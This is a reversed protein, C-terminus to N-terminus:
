KSVLKIRLLFTFIKSFFLALYVVIPLNNKNKVYIHLKDISTIDYSRFRYTLYKVFKMDSFGNTTIKKLVLIMESILINQDNVCEHTVRFPNDVTSILPKKNYIFRRNCKLLRIYFDLDVLWKISKDFFIAKNTRFITASPAGVIASFFLYDPSRKILDLQKGTPSHQNILRFDKDINLSSSFAFDTDPNEDLMRVFERLSYNYTLFDDHHLIKIYEGEAKRISENWNEPTGLTTPNKFYKLRGQFDFEDILEKISNNPTDDTIVIEYDRFDQELISNLTKRLYVTQNYAPICISVKM